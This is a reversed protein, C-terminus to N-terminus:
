RRRPAKYPLLMVRHRDVTTPQTRPGLYVTGLTVLGRGRARRMLLKGTRDLKVFVRQTRGEPISIVARGLEYTRLKSRVRGRIRERVRRRTTLVLEGKCPDGKCTLRVLARGKRDLRTLGTRFIVDAKPGTPPNIPSTPPAPPTPGAAPQTCGEVNPSTDSDIIVRMTAVDPNDLSLQVPSPGVDSFSFGYSDSNAVIVSAYQHFYPSFAPPAPWAAAFPPQGHWASSDNGYKGGWYGLAFGAVLDRYIVAYVDNDAVAAPQGDLTYVGNGSYIGGLMSAGTVYLTKGTTTQQGAPLSPDTITGNLTISGDAAFTGTYDTTQYPKGFFQSDITISKGAMYNLYGTMEPYSTPSIQPSLIRSFTNQATLIQAGSAGPIQLLQPVIADTHCRYSLTELVNNNADLTQLDMPIGFFDVSTLNGKGPITFEVKDNRTPFTMPEATGVGGNYSVYLRGATISGLSFTQNTINSLQTPTDAPLQGDLSSGNDLTLWVNEPTIGSNNVIQVNITGTGALATGPLSLLATTAATM